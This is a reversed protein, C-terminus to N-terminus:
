LRRIHTHLLLLSTNNKLDCVAERLRVMMRWMIQLEGSLGPQREESSLISQLTTSVVKSNTFARLIRQAHDVGPRCLVGMVEPVIFNARQKSIDEVGEEVTDEDITLQDKPVVREENAVGPDFSPVSITVNAEDENLHLINVLKPM